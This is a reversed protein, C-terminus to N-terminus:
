LMKWIVWLFAASLIAAPIFDLLVVLKEERTLAQWTEPRFIPQACGAAKSVGGVDDEFM